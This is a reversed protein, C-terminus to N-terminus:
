MVMVRKGTRGEEYVSDVMKEHEEMRFCKADSKIGHKVCLDVTEALDKENGRLSGVVTLDKFIFDVFTFTLKPPQAVLVFIGHLRVVDIAYGLAPEADATFIVALNPYDSCVETPALGVMRAM